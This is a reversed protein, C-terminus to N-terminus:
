NKAPPYETCLLHLPQADEAITPFRRLLELFRNDRADDNVRSVEGALVTGGGAAGYFKHYLYPPLTISEGPELVVKGGAPLTRAIGDISVAVESAEDLAESDRDANWLEIVLRGGGRNIIDEMKSFHFHTPTVQGEGVLLIKECYDKAAPGAQKGEAAPQGNRITFLLLGVRRYDGAGFDTVDWGLRCRRIEDAEGGAAQWDAPSWYAWKPLHFSREECFAIAERLYGNIESRKM